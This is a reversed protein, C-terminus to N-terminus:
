HRYKVSIETQIDKDTIRVKNCKLLEDLEETVEQLLSTYTCSTEKLSAKM